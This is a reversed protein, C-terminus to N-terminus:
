VRDRITANRQALRKAACQALLSANAAVPGTEVWAIGQATFGVHRHVFTQGTTHNIEATSWMQNPAAQVLQLEPPDARRFLPLVHRACKSESERPFEKLPEGVLRTARQMQLQEVPLFRVM